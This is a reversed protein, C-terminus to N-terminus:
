AAVQAGRQRQKPTVNLARLQPRLSSLKRQLVAAVLPKLKHLISANKLERTHLVFTSLVDVQVAFHTSTVNTLQTKKVVM